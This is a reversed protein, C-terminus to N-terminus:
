DTHRDFGYLWQDRLVQCTRDYWASICRIGDFEATLRAQALTTSPHTVEPFDEHQVEKEHRIKRSTSSVPRHSSSDDKKGNIGVVWKAAGEWSM